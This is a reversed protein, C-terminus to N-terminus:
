SYDTTVGYRLLDLLNGKSLDLTSVEFSQDACCFYALTEFDESFALKSKEFSSDCSMSKIDSFFQELTTDTM